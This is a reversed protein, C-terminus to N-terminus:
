DEAVLAAPVPGWQLRYYAQPDVMAACLAVLGNNGTVPTIVPSNPPTDGCHVNPVNVWSVLNTSKQLWYNTNERSVFTIQVMAGDDTQVVQIQLNEPAAPPNLPTGYLRGGISTEQQLIAALQNYANLQAPTIDVPQTFGLGSLNRTELPGAANYVTTNPPMGDNAYYDGGGPTLDYFEGQDPTPPTLNGDWYRAYKYDPTRVVQIRNPPPVIGSTNSGSEPQAAFIDDFTFLVYPQVSTGSTNNDPDLIVQSYNVGKFGKAQWNPVGVLECLTPLLDVNAVIADTSKATPFLEPNSWILPVRLAEEYAVFAKQRLGDHCLAMEGHDSTRIILADNLAAGTGDGAPDLVQLLQGLQQDVAVMLRGYFNIYNLQKDETLLPGLGQAMAILIQQQVSPKTSLDESITPPLDITPTFPDLWPSPDLVTYGDGYGNDAPTTYQNPYSLVDHPNVLSLILCYPKPNDSNLRDTLWSVADDVYRQDNKVTNKADAGGFHAPQTDGGADPADWGDFGYRSIDDQIYTTGDASLVQSSMHWKGKYVVDYGAEKMCTALNPLTPDLQHETNSQPFGETLTDKSHHQAAFLGTFMCNRSVTCMAAATFAQNFTLGFNKLRQTNLLNTEAWGPPFWMPPREQDTILIIINKQSPLQGARAERCMLGLFQSGILAGASLKLFDRRALSSESHSNAAFASTKEM